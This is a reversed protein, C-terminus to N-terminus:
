KVIKEKNYKSVIDKIFIEDQIMNFKEFFNMNYNVKLLSNKELYSLNYKSLRCCIIFENIRNVAALIDNQMDEQDLFYHVFDIDTIFLIARDRDSYLSLDDILSDLQARLYYSEMKNKGIIDEIYKAIIVEFEYVYENDFKGFYKRTLYETYGENIGLGFNRKKQYLYFGDKIDNKTTANSAMHFLEHYLSKDSIKNKKIIICNKLYDYNSNTAYDLKGYIEDTTEIIKLDALNSYFNVLDLDNFSNILTYKFKNIKNNIETM